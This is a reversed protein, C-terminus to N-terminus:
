NVVLKPGRACPVNNFCGLLESLDSKGVGRPTFLCNMRREIIEQQQQIEETCRLKIKNRPSGPGSTGPYIPQHRESSNDPEALRSSWGEARTGGVLDESLLRKPCDGADVYMDRNPCISQDEEISGREEVLDESMRLPKSWRAM